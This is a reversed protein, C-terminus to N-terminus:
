KLRFAWDYFANMFYKLSYAVSFADIIKQAM